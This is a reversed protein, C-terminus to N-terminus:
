VLNLHAGGQFLSEKANHASPLFRYVNLFLDTLSIVSARCREMQGMVDTSKSQFLFLKGPLFTSSCPLCGGLVFCTASCQMQFVTINGHSNQVVFHSICSCVTNRPTAHFLLCQYLRNMLLLNKNFHLFLTFPRTFVIDEEGLNSYTHIRSIGTVNLFTKPKNSKKVARWCCSCLISEGM